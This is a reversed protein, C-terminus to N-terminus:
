IGVPLTESQVLKAHYNYIHKEFFDRSYFEKQCEVCTYSITTTANDASSNTRTEKMLKEQLEKESKRIKLEKELEPSIQELDKSM